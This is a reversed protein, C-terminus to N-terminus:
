SISRMSFTCRASMILCVTIVKPRDAAEDLSGIEGDCEGVAAAAYGNGGIALVTMIEASSTEDADGAALAM